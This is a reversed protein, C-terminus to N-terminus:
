YDNTETEEEYDFVDDYNLGNVNCYEDISEYGESEIEAAVSERIPM